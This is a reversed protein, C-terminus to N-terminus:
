NRLLVLVVIIIGGWILWRKLNGIKTVLLTRCQELETKLEEIAGNARSEMAALEEIADKPKISQTAAVRKICAERNQHMESREEPYSFNPKPELWSHEFASSNADRWINENFSNAYMFAPGDRDSYRQFAQIDLGNGTLDKRQGYGPGWDKGGNVPNKSYAALRRVRVPDNPDLHLYLGYHRLLHFQVRESATMGDWKQLGRLFGFDNEKADPTIEVDWAQVASNLKEDSTYAGSSASIPFSHLFEAMTTAGFSTKPCVTAATVIADHINSHILDPGENDTTDKRYLGKNRGLMGLCNLWRNEDIRGYAGSKQACRLLLGQGLSLNGHMSRLLGFRENDCHEILWSFDDGSTESAKQNLGGFIL